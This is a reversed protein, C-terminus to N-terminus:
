SGKDLGSVLYKSDGDINGKDIFYPKVLRLTLVNADMSSLEDFSGAVGSTDVARALLEPLFLQM